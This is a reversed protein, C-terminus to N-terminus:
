YNGHKIQEMTLYVLFDVADMERRYKPINMIQTFLQPSVDGPFLIRGGAFEVLYMINFDHEPNQAGNKGGKRVCLFV